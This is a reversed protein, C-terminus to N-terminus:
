INEVPAKNPPFVMVGSVFVEFSYNQSHGEGGFDHVMNEEFWYLDTIEFREKTKTDIAFIQLM